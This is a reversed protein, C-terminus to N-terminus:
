LPARRYCDILEVVSTNSVRPDERLPHETAVHCAFDDDVRIARHNWAQRDITATTRGVTMSRLSANLGRGDAKLVAEKVTWLRFFARLPDSAIAFSELEEETFEETFDAFEIPAVKEIDIGVRGSSAVAGIVYCGSHSLNFERQRPFYPRGANTHRLSSRSCHPFLFSRLLLSIHKAARDETTRFRALMNSEQPPLERRAADLLMVDRDNDFRVCHVRVSVHTRAPHAPQLEASQSM